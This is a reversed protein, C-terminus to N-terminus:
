RRTYNLRPNPILFLWQVYKSIFCVRPRNNIISQRPEQACFGGYSTRLGQTEVSVSLGQACLGQMRLGALLSM